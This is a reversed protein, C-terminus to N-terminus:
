PGGALHRRMREIAVVLDRDVRDRLDTATIPVVVGPRIGVGHFLSGDPNRVEMGTYSFRFQGPLMAETRNGNTGASPQGVIAALRDAGVLMQMFNESASAAHPGTILVIPGAWSPDTRPTRQYQEEHLETRDPGTYTMWSFRPATFPRPILREAVEYNSVGPAGRMDVILGRAGRRVADAIADRVQQQATSAARDLNLYHLEPAGADDLPGSRRAAFHDDRAGTLESRPQPEVRVTRTAGATDALTLMQPGRMPGLERAAVDFRFGPTPPSSRALEEAMIEATPRGDIALITDGPNVEPVRSTRVVPLGGIDEVFVALHGAIDSPGLDGVFVHGDRLAEGFRRLINRATRRDSGDWADVTALTEHLRPDIRDGVTDFYRFFLRALGHVTLLGARVAGRDAPGERVQGFPQVAVPAPRETPGNVPAPEDGALRRALRAARTATAPSADVDAGIVDPWVAADTSSAKLAISVGDPPVTFGQVWVQYRGEPVAGILRIREAAAAGGSRGVQEAPYSFEGDGNADRLLYMDVDSESPGDTRVDLHRLGPGVTLDRRYATSAPDAPDQTIKQGRLDLITTTGLRRELQTTRIALGHAGVGRWDSEAVAAHVDQGVIWARRTIRLRGALEAAEPAMRRSTLLVLPLDRTGTRPLRAADEIALGTSYINTASLAEDVPGNHTRQWNVPPKDPAALAPAVARELTHRLRREAPLNRLDVVVAKTRRPLRVEGVGPRVVAIKGRRVVRARGLTRNDGPLACVDDLGGAYRKLAARIGARTLSGQEELAADLALDSPKFASTAGFARVTIAAASTDVPISQEGGPGGAVRDCWAPPAAGATATGASVLAICGALVICLSRSRLMGAVMHAARPRRMPSFM